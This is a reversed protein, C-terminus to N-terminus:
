ECIGGSKSSEMLHCAFDVHACVFRMVIDTWNNVFLGSKGSHGTWLTGGINDLGQRDCEGCALIKQMFMVIACCRGSM